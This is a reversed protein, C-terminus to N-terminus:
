WLRSTAIQAGQALAHLKATAVTPDIEPKYSAQSAFGCDSGAIVNERGVREAFRIIREAILEPHEVINTSHTIVGPILIKDAPLRVREWIHYEHEHRPNAAEVLYAGAKVRLVVEIIQSLDVDHVRPGENIGYCTHFRIKEEPINRVAHNIAEVCIEARHHQETVTLTPLSYIEAINPDDVQLIFGAAVIAEYETRLADAVAFLYESESDYYRNTGVKSPAIAPVFAEGHWDEGLANVADRLNELDRNLADQGKYDVPGTCMLRTSPAIAGAAMAVNFYEEYYEPFAKIEAEFLTGLSARADGHPEFGDLRESVYTAHGLKGQEGDSVSDLGSAAQDRVCTTVAQRVGREYERADYPEGRARSRMLDLLAVPRALSGVHTTLIRDTSRKV